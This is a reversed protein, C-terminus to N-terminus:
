VMVSSPEKIGTGTEICPNWCGRVWGVSISVQYRGSV